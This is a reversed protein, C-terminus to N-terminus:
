ENHAYLMIIVRELDTANITIWLTPSNIGHLTQIIQKHDIIADLIFSLYPRVRPATYTLHLSAM